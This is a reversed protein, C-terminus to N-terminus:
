GDGAEEPEPDTSPAPTGPEHDQRYGCGACIWCKIFSSWRALCYRKCKPCGTPWPKVHFSARPRSM